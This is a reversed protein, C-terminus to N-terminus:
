MSEKGTGIGKNQISSNVGASSPAGQRSMEPNQAIRPPKLDGKQPKGKGKPHIGLFGGHAMIHQAVMPNQGNKKHVAIHIMHNENPGVLAPSHQLMLQDEAEAKKQEEDDNGIIISDIDKVFKWRKMGAKLAEGKKIREPAFQAAFNLFDLLQKKDM